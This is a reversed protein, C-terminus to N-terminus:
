RQEFLFNLKDSVNFSVFVVIAKNSNIISKLLARGDLLKGSFSFTITNSIKKSSKRLDFGSSELAERAMEPTILVAEAYSDMTKVYRFWKDGSDAKQELLYYDRNKEAIVMLDAM